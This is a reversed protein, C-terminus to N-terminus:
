MENLKIQYFEDFSIVKAMLRDYASPNEITFEIEDEGGGDPIPPFSGIAERVSVYQPLPLLGDKKDSFLPAPQNITINDSCGILIVRKRKQPVGFDAANLKM